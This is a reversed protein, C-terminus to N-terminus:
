HPTFPATGMTAPTSAPAPANKKDGSSSAAPTAAGHSMGPDMPADHDVKITRTTSNWPGDIPKDSADVLDLKLTYSGNQLNDLYLPPGFKTVKQTLPDTIGPGSVSVNVHDKGDALTDNVLQFDVLVHNAMDGNYDGKPRSYVLMPKKTPDDKTEGKKGIWFEIATLADKTKVSEHNARSPFAVLVHRGEKLEEGGALDNLKVPAKTDYIPKYPKNDLILHVHQSGPATQWNKVDLKVEFAGAKDTAIVQDRTPATLKVTPAPTPDPSAAGPTLTVPPRPPPTPPNAPVSTTTPAAADVTAPPPPPPPPPPLNDNGGGCASLVFLCSAIRHLKM